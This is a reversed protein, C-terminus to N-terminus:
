IKHGEANYKHRGDKGGEELYDDSGKGTFNDDQLALELLATYARLDLLCDYIAEKDIPEHPTPHIFLGDWVLGRLRLYMTRVELFLGIAGIAEWANSRKTNAVQLRRANETFIKDIRKDVEKYDVM